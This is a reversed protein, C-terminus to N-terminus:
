GASQQKALMHQATERAAGAALLGAGFANLQDDYGDAVDLAALAVCVVGLAFDTPIKGGMLTPLKVSLVGATVGGATTLVATTGLRAAHKTGAKIRAVSNKLSVFKEALETKSMDSLHPIVATHLM